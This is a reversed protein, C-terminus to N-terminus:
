RIFILLCIKKDEFQVVQGNSMIMFSHRVKVMYYLFSWSKFMEVSFIRRIAEISRIALMMAFLVEKLNPMGVSIKKRAM